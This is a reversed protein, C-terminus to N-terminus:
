SELYEIPWGAEARGQKYAATLNNQLVGYCDFCFTWEQPQEDLVYGNDCDIGTIEHGCISCRLDKIM